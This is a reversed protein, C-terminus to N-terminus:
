RLNNTSDIPDGRIKERRLLAVVFLVVVVVVVLILSFYVESDIAQQPSRRLPAYNGNGTNFDM